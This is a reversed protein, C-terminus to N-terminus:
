SNSYECYECEEDKHNTIDEKDIGYDTTYDPDRTVNELQRFIKPYNIEQDIEEEEDGEYYIGCLDYRINCWEVERKTAKRADDNADIFKM